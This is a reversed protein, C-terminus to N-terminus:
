EKSKKEKKGPEKRRKVLLILKMAKRKRIANIMKKM